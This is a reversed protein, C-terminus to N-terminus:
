ANSSFSNKKQWWSKIFFTMRPQRFIFWSNDWLNLQMFQLQLKNKKKLNPYINAKWKM